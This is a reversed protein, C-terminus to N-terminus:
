TLEVELTGSTSGGQGDSVTFGFSDTGRPLLTTTVGSPLRNSWAWFTDSAQAAFGADTLKTLTGSSFNYAYTPAVTYGSTSESWTAIQGDKSLSIQGEDVADNTLQATAGTSISYAFVQYHSGDWKTYLLRDGQLKYESAHANQSTPDSLDVIQKVQNGDWLYLGSSSSNNPDIGRWVAYNGSAAISGFNLNTQLDQVQGNNWRKITYTTGDTQTWYIQNNSVAGVSDNIASGNNTIRTQIGTNLDLSYVETSPANTVKDRVTGSWALLNGDIRPGAASYVPDNFDPQNFQKTQGTKLNYGVVNYSGSEYIITKNDIITPFSSAPLGQNWVVWDGSTQVGSDDLSNDTLRTTQGTTGEYLYLEAGVPRTISVPGTNQTFVVDNGAIVPLISNNRDSGPLDISNEQYNVRGQDIDDQTFTAGQSLQSGNLFLSGKAPLTTLTYTLQTPSQEADQAKVQSGSIPITRLGSATSTVLKPATNPVPTPAPTPVPSPIPAPTIAAIAQNLNLRRGSATKGQLAPLADGTNMLTSRIQVPTLTPQKSLLLAAAGAVFPTAMSTGSKYGYSGPITSYINAGPAGLDVTQLGYNSFSALQNTADTAAVSIINPLDYDAPYFPAADSNSGNNGAGAVITVGATNARAIASYLATSYTNGGFSCNIINAGNKVAYDIGRVANSILLSGNSSVKVPMIQVNPDVGSVGIGNNGSAGIIGAVHTGHGDSDLPQANKDVFSWGRTDDIFGNGDDDIGNGPIERTNRWINQALDPHTYDVGTDVVAVVVRRDGTTKDWAGPANVNNLGWQLSFSPDNPIADTTLTYDLESSIGQQSLTDRVVRADKNQFKLMGWQDDIAQYDIAGVQQLRAADFNGQVLLQDPAFATQTAADIPLGSTSDLAASSWKLQYKTTAKLKGPYVRITYSGPNLTMGIQESVRGKQASTAIAKKGQLLQLNIDGKASSAISFFQRNTLKIRLYDNRDSGGIADKYTSRNSRLQTPSGVRDSADVM